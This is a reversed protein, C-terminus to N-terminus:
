GIGVNIALIYGPVEDVSNVTRNGSGHCANVFCVTHSHLLGHDFVGSENIKIDCGTLCCANTEVRVICRQIRFTGSNELIKLAAFNNEIHGAAHATFVERAADRDTSVPRHRVGTGDFDRHFVAGVEYFANRKGSGRTGQGVGTRDCNGAGAPTVYVRDFAFVGVPLFGITNGKVAATIPLVM